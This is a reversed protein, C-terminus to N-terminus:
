RDLFDFEHGFAWEHLFCSLKKTIFNLLTREKNKQEYMGVTATFAADRNSYGKLLIFTVDSFLRNERGEIKKKWYIM